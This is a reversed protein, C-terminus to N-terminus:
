QAARVGLDSRLLELQHPKDIDMAVEAYPCVVARGTVGLRKTVRPIAGEITLRRLLLLLLTSYGIMSAQKFVNKRAGILQDWIQDESTALSARIVHVDGGCVHMGKLPTYSRRSGPFRAEMVEKTVVTYYLDHDSQMTTEVQWDLMEARIAPVDGSVLIVHEAQPNMELAKRVGARVNDLMAGQQPVFAIPKDCHMEDDPGLGVVVVHEIREAASLADLVWQVMPKGAVELFAKAGGQTYDYLPDDPKPVGGATVIADM